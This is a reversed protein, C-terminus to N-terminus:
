LINREVSHLYLLVRNILILDVLSLMKCFSISIAYRRQCYRPFALLQCNWPSILMNVPPYLQIRDQAVQIKDMCEYRIGNLDNIMIMVENLVKIASNFGMQWRSANNPAWRIRWTLLIRTLGTYRLGTTNLSCTRNTIFDTFIIWIIKFANRTGEEGLKHM